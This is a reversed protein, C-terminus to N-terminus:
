YTDLNKLMLMKHSIDSKIINNKNYTITPFYLTDYIIPLPENSGINEVSDSLNSQKLNKIELKNILINCLKIQEKSKPFLYSKPWSSKSYYLNRKYENESNSSNFVFAGEM